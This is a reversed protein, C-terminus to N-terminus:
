LTYQQKTHLLISALIGDWPNEDDLVIDQVIFTHTTNDIIQHARELISSAQPNRSTITKVRMAYYAQIITQFEASLKNEQDVKDKCPLLYMTLWALEVQNSVLDAQISSVTCLKSWGTAPDIM